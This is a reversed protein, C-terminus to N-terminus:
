IRQHRLGHCHVPRQADGDGQDGRVPEFHRHLGSNTPPPLSPPFLSPANTHSHSHSYHVYYRLASCLAPCSSSLLLLLSFAIGANCRQSSGSCFWSAWVRWVRGAGDLGGIDSFFVTVIDFRKAEPRVGERLSEVVEPPLIEYMLALDIKHNFVENQMLARSEHLEQSKTRVSTYLSFTDISASHLALSCSTLAALSLVWQFFADRFAPPPLLGSATAVAVAFLAALAGFVHRLPLNRMTAQALVPAIFFFGGGLPRELCLSAFAQASTDDCLGAFHSLILFFLLMSTFLFFCAMACSDITPGVDRLLRDNAAKGPGSTSAHHYLLDLQRWQQQARSIVLTFAAGSLVVLLAVALFIYVFVVYTSSCSGQQQCVLGENVAKIALIVAIAESLTVFGLEKTRLLSLRILKKNYFDSVSVKAEGHSKSSGGMWDVQMEGTLLDEETIHHDEAAYKTLSTPSAKRSNRRAAAAANAHEAAAPHRFSLARALGQM